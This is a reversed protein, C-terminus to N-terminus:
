YWNAGDFTLVLSGNQNLTYSAPINGGGGISVSGADIKMLKVTRGIWGGSLTTIPTTGVIYFNSNGVGSIDVTTASNKGVPAADDIGENDRIIKHTGSSFDVLPGLTNGSLSNGAIQYYDVSSGGVVNIGYQANAGASHDIGAHLGTIKWNTGSGSIAIGNIGNGSATGGNITWRKSTGGITAGNGQNRLFLCATCDVMDVTGTAGPVMYLGDGSSLGFWVNSMRLYYVGGSPNIVASAVVTGTAVKWSSDFLTNDISVAYNNLNIPVDMLLAQGHGTINSDSIFGTDGNHIRIGFTPQACTEGASACPGTMILRSLKFSSFNLLQIAGSGDLNSKNTNRFISGTAEFGVVLAAPPHEGVSIAIYYSEFTCDIIKAANGLVNIYVQGANPTSVYTFKFGRMFGSGNHIIASGSTSTSYLVVPYDAGAAEMSVGAPVTLTSFRYGGRPFTVLGGGVSVANLAAQIAATDNTSGDGKAGYQRVDVVPKNKVQSIFDIQQAFAAACVALFILFRTM